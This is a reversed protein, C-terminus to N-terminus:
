STDKKDIWYGDGDPYSSDLPEKKNSIKELTNVIAERESPDLQEKNKVAWIMEEVTMKKEM